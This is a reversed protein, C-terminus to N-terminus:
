TDNEPGHDTFPSVCNPPWQFTAKPRTMPVELKKLEEPQQYSDYYPVESMM